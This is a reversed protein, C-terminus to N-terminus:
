MKLLPKLSMLSLSPSLSLWFLLLLLLRHHHGLPLVEWTSPVPLVYARLCFQTETVWRHAWVRPAMWSVHWPKEEPFSEWGRNTKSLTQKVTDRASEYLFPNLCSQFADSETRYGPTFNETTSILFLPQLFMPGWMVLFGRHSFGASCPQSCSVLPRVRCSKQPSHLVGPISFTPLPPLFM